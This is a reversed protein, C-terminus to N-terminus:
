SEVGYAVQLENTVHQVRALLDDDTEGDNAYLKAVFNFGKSNRTVEISSRPEFTPAQQMEVNM